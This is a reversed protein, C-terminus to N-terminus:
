KLFVVKLQKKKGNDLHKLNVAFNRQEDDPDELTLNREHIDRLFDIPLSYENFNYLKRHKSKYHLEGAKIIDQLNVIEKLKTRVLDNM